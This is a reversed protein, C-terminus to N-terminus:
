TVIVLIITAPLKIILVNALFFSTKLGYSMLYL